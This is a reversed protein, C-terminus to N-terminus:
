PGRPYFILLLLLAVFLLLFVPPGAPYDARYRWAPWGGLLVLVLFVVLVVELLGM